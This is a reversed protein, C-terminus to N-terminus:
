ARALKRRRQLMALGMLSALAAISMTMTAPEPIDVGAKNSAVWFLTTNDTTRIQAAFYFAGGDNGTAFDALTLGGTRTVDFSLLTPAGSNNSREVMFDFNTSGTSFYSGAAYSSNAQSGTPGFGSTVNSLTQNGSASTNWYLSDVGNGGFRYGSALQVTVDVSGGGNDSLTVTGFNFNNNGAGCNAANGSCNLTYQIAASAPMASVALGLMAALILWFRKM